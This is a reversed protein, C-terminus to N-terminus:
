RRSKFHSNDSRLTNMLAWGFGITAMVGVIGLLGLANQTGPSDSAARLLGLAVTTAATVATLVQLRRIPSRDPM